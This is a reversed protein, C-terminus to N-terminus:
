CFCKDPERPDAALRGLDPVSESVLQFLKQVNQGTKASTEIVRIGVRWILRTELSVAPSTMEESKVPQKTGDRPEKSLHHFQSMTSLSQSQRNAFILPFFLPFDSRAPQTGYKSISPRVASKFRHPSSMSALVRPITRTLTMASLGPYSLPKALM